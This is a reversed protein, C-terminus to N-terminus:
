QAVRQALCRAYGEVDGEVLLIDICAEWAAEIADLSPGFYASVLHDWAGSEKMKAMGSHIRPLLGHPDGKRVLFGFQEYTWITGVVELQGPYERVIALSPAEDQVVADVRGALLDMIAEPYTEYLVLRVDVGADVLHDEVWAAGTTGRQAAVRAGRSLATVVNLGSGARVVILQDSTWYPESFDVVLARAETITFGSAGIHILGEGVQPIISDFAVDRIEIEFGELIAICRMVDLDFGLYDGRESVWEFPPWAIDCGVVYTMSTAGVSGLVLLGVLVFLGRRMGM